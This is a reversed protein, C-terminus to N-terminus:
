RIAEEPDIVAARWSPIITAAIYVPVTAFFITMFLSIDFIPILNFDPKLISYGMFINKIIAADLFYVWFYSLLLAFLFSLLSILISEFFKLRLVDNIEWGLAKLIGIEKIQEKTVSSAKEFVLIFFAFISTILLTLFFGRKYDFINQYSAKIDEKTIVRTDPYLNRIKQAVTQVELPNPVNVVIDTIKDEDMGFIERALNIPLLITDSSEIESDARFEGAIKINLMDGDPKIFNFSNKYYNEKLVRKVGKGVIMIKKDELNSYKEIVKNLSKKYGKLDFDIGVISFNVGARQFYYYGWVRPNAEKVGAIDEIEYIRDIDMNTMRGAVIRQVIIDPLSEYTLQLEKKISGSILFISFLLTILLTFIIFISLNKWFRRKLSNIAFDLMKLNM